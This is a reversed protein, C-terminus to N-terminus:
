LLTMHNSMSGLHKCMKTSCKMLGSIEEDSAPWTKFMLLEQIYNVFM